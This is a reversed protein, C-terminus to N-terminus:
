AKCDERMRKIAEHYFVECAPADIRTEGYKAYKCPFTKRRADTGIECFPCDSCHCRENHQMFDDEATEAKKETVVYYFRASTADLDKVETVSGGLERATSNYLKDFEKATKASITKVQRIETERM